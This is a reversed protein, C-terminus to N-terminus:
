QCMPERNIVCSWTSPPFGNITQQSLASDGPPRPGAGVNVCAGLALVALLGINHLLRIGSRM